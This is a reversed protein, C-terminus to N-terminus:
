VMKDILDHVVRHVLSQCAETVLDAHLDVFVIRNSYRVISPSERSSDVVLCSYRCHLNYESYEMRASLEASPSVLYGAAEM